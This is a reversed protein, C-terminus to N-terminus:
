ERPVFILLARDMTVTAFLELKGSEAKYYAAQGLLSLFHNETNSVSESLAAMRTTVAQSITLAGTASDATYAATLRNVGTFGSLIGDTGFILEPPRIGESLVGGTGAGFAELRWATGAAEFFSARATIAKSAVPAQRSTCGAWLLLTVGFVAVGLFLVFSSKRVM